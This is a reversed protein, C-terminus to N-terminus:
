VCFISTIEFAPSTCGLNAIEETTFIKTEDDLFGHKKQQDQQHQEKTTASKTM